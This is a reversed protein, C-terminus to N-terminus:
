AHQIQRQEYQRIVERIRGRWEAERRERYQRAADLNGAAAALELCLRTLEGVRELRQTPTLALAARVQDQLRQHRVPWPLRELIDRQTAQTHM